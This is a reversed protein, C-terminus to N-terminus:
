DYRHLFLYSCKRFSGCMAYAYTSQEKQLLVKGAGGFSREIDLEIQFRTEDSFLSYFKKCDASSQNAIKCLLTKRKRERLYFFTVNPERSPARRVIMHFRMAAKLHRSM